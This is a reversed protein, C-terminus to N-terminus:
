VLIQRPPLPFDHFAHVLTSQGGSLGAPLTKLAVGPEVDEADSPRM